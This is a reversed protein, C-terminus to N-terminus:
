FMQPGPTGTFAMQEQFTPAKLDKSVDQLKNV